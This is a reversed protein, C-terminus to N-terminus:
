KSPPRGWRVGKVPRTGRIPDYPTDGDEGPITPSFRQRAMLADKGGKPGEGYPEVAPAEVKKRGRWHKALTVLIVVAVA